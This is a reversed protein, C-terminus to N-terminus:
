GRRLRDLERRAAEAADQTEAVADRATRALKDARAATQEARDAQRSAKKLEATLHEVEAAATRAAEATAAQTRGARECGRVADDLAGAARHVAAEAREVQKRDPAKAAPKGTTRAPAAVADSLDVGGFGAYSLSRVLRGSRVADASAPEALAAELTNAVEDRVASTLSRGTAVAAADTVAAVLDRRQQGLARLGDAHGASQAEALAPGLALLQDLLPRQQTALLNVLWAAVSPKRLAQLQKALGPDGGAKAQKAALDRAATFDEPALAYLEDADV